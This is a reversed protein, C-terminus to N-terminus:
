YCLLLSVLKYVWVLLFCLLIGTIDTMLSEFTNEVRGNCTECFTLTVATYLLSSPAPSHRAHFAVWQAVFVDNQVCNPGFTILAFAHLQITQSHIHAHIFRPLKKLFIFSVHVNTSLAAPTSMIKLWLTKVKTHGPFM